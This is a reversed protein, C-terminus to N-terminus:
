KGGEWLSGGDSAGEQAGTGSCAGTVCPEGACHSRSLAECTWPVVGPVLEEKAGQCVILRIAQPALSLYTYLGTEDNTKCM